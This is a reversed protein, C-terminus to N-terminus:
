SLLRKNTFCFLNDHTFIERVGGRERLSLSCLANRNFLCKEVSGRPPRGGIKAWHYFSNNVDKSVARAPTGEGGPPNGFINKLLSVSYIYVLSSICLTKGAFAPIWDCRVIISFGCQIGAKAPIVTLPARRYRELLDVMKSFGGFPSPAYPMGIIM